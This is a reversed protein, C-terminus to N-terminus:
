SEEYIIPDTSYNALTTNMFVLVRRAEIYPDCINSKEDWRVWQGSPSTRFIIYDDFDAYPTTGTRNFMKCDFDDIFEINATVDPNSKSKRKFVFEGTIAASSCADDANIVARFILSEVVDVIEDGDNYNQYQDDSASLPKYEFSELTYTQPLVGGLMAVVVLQDQKNQHSSVIIEPEYPTCPNIRIRPTVGNPCANGEADEEYQVVGVVDIPTDLDCVRGTVPSVPDIAIIQPPFTDPVIYHWNAEIIADSNNGTVFLNICNGDRTFGTEPRNNCDNDVPKDPGNTDIVVQPASALGTTGYKTKEYRIITSLGSEPQWDRIEQIKVEVPKGKILIQYLESLKLNQIELDNYNMLAEAAIGDFKEELYRKHCHDYPNFDLFAISLANWSFRFTESPFTQGGEADNSPSIWNQNMGSTPILNTSPQGSRLITRSTTSSQFGGFNINLLFGHRCVGFTLLRRYGLDWGLEAEEEDGVLQPLYMPLSKQLDYYRSYVNNSFATIITSEQREIWPALFANQTPVCLPMQEEEEDTDLYQEGRDFLRSYLPENGDQETIHWDVADQFRVRIFRKETTDPHITRVSGPEIYPQADVVKSEDYYGKILGSSLTIDYPMQGTVTRHAFDTTLLWRWFGISDKFVDLALLNPDVIDSIEYERGEQFLLRRCVFDCQSEGLYQFECSEDDSIVEIRLATGDMVTIGEVTFEILEPDDPVPNERSIVQEELVEVTSNIPDSTTRRVLRYTLTKDQGLNHVRINQTIAVDVVCNGRFSGRALSPSGGSFENWNGNNNHLVEPFTVIYLDAGGYTIIRSDETFAVSASHNDTEENQGFDPRIPYVLSRKGLDNNMIDAKFRWGVHRFIKELIFAEFFHPREYSAPVILDGQETNGAQLMAPGYWCLPQWAGNTGDYLRTDHLEQTTRINHTYTGFDIENMKVGGLLRGWHDTRLGIYVEIEGGDLAAQDEEIFMQASSDIRSAVVFDVPIGTNVGTIRAVNAYHEIIRYNKSNGELSFGIVRNFDISNSDDLLVLEETIIDMSYSFDDPTDFYVFGDDNRLTDDIAVVGDENRIRIKVM